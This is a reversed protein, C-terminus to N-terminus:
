TVSLGALGVQDPESRLLYQAQLLLERGRVARLQERASRAFGVATLALVLFSLAAASLVWILRRRQKREQGRLQGWDRGPYFRLLVQKLDEILEGRLQHNTPSAVITARHDKVSAWVPASQLSDRVTPPVLHERIEEWTQYDGSSIIILVQGNRPRSFWYRAEIEMGESLAAEPSALVVLHSSRDLRDYLEAELSSGVPLCSLDRFVTKARLKYFPRLFQQILSQIVPAVKSDSKWSYSLFADYKEASDVWILSRLWSPVFRRWSKSPALDLPLAGDEESMAEEGVPNYRM